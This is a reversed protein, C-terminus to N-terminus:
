FPCLMPWDVGALSGFYWDAGKLKEIPHTTALAMVRLNARHAAEIGTNTDEIALCEAPHRGLREVALRYGAPDPKSAPVDDRTVVCTFLDLITPRPLNSCLSVIESRRSGSCIALPVLERLEAVLDLVGPFSKVGHSIQLELAKSKAAKLRRLNFQEEPLSAMEWVRRFFTEDDLGVYDRRFTEFDIQVGHPQLVEQLARHHLPESDVLVGDFDFVIGKLGHPLRM